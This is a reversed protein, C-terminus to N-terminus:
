LTPPIPLNNTTGSESFHKILNISYKMKSIIYIRSNNYTFTASNIKINIDDYIDQELKCFIRANDNVAMWLKCTVSYHVMLEKISLEWNNLPYKEEEPQGECKIILEYEDDIYLHLDYCPQTLEIGTIKRGELQKAAVAIKGVNATTDDDATALLRGLHLIEWYCWIWISNNNETNILLISGVAGGARSYEINNGILKQISQEIQLTKM